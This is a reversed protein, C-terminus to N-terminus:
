GLRRWGFGREGIGGQLWVGGSAGEASRSTPSLIYRSCLTLGLLIGWGANNGRQALCADEKGDRDRHDKQARRFRLLIPACNQSSPSSPYSRARVRKSGPAPSTRSSAYRRAWRGSTAGPWGRTM